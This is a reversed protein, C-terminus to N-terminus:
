NGRNGRRAERTHNSSSSDIIEPTGGEVGFRVAVWDVRIPRLAQILNAIAIEREAASAHKEGANGDPLVCFSDIGNRGAQMSTPGLGLAVAVTRAATVPGDDSTKVSGDESVRVNFGSVIITTHIYISM